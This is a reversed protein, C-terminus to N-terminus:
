ALLSDLPPSLLDLQHRARTLATYLLRRDLTSGDPMVVIVERAQSGQSKHVTLALAPEPCPLLELPLRRPGEATAIVAENGRPGPRVLGRDGNALGLSTDNRGVLLPTGAPWHWPERQTLPLWHRNLQSVGQRGSRRPSLVLLEELCALAESDSLASNNAKQELRQRHQMLRQQLALPWGQQLPWWHLNSDEVGNCLQQQLAATKSGQGLHQVFRGLATSDNFRHSRELQLLLQPRHQKLLQELPELVSSGGIPPLQASDGVLLLRATSPLAELLAQMLRTDVMSVEDVVVVEADIPRGQHRGFGGSPNAELARHLTSCQMWAPLPSLAERLRAAAKGTPALLLTQRETADALLQRVRTTKGTGAGGILLLGQHQHLRQELEKLLSQQQLHQRRSWLEAGQDEREILVLPLQDLAKKTAATLEAFEASDLQLPECGQLQCLLLRELLPQLAESQAQVANPALSLLRAAGRQCRSVESM